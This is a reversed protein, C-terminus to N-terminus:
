AKRGPGGMRPLLAGTGAKWIEYPAGFRRSMAADEQRCLAVTSVLVVLFVVGPVMSPALMVFGADAVLEGLYMPHRIHRFMGGTNVLQRPNFLPGAGKILIAFHWLNVGAGVIVLAAGAPYAYGPIEGNGWHHAIMNLALYLSGLTKIFWTVPPM